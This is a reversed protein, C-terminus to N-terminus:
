KEWWKMLTEAPSPVGSSTRTLLVTILAIWAVGVAFQANGKEVLSFAIAAFGTAVPVRWNLPKSNLISENFMTIGGIALIPGTTKAM